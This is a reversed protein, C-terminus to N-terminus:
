PGRVADSQRTLRVVVSGSGEIRERSMNATIGKPLGELSLTVPADFGNSAHVSLRYDVAGGDQHLMRVRRGARLSFDPQVLCGRLAFASVDTTWNLSGDSKLYQTTYWFTCDKSPDVRMASTDSWRVLDTQSGTGNVILTEPGMTGPPDT